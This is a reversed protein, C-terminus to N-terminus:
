LFLKGESFIESVNVINKSKDHQYLIVLDSHIKQTIVGKKSAKDVYWSDAEILCEPYNSCRYFRKKTTIIEKMMTECKKCIVQLEGKEEEWKKLIEQIRKQKEEEERKKREEIELKEEEKRHLIAIAMDDANLTSSESIINNSSSTSNTQVVTEIEEDTYFKCAFITEMASSDVSRPCNIMLTCSFCLPIKEEENVETINMDAFDKCEFITEMKSSDIGRPCNMMNICSFCLPNKEEPVESVSEMNEYTDCEMCEEMKASDIGKPCDIMLSCSFCLPNGDQSRHIKQPSTRKSSKASSNEPEKDLDRSLFELMDMDGLDDDLNLDLSLESDGISFIDEPPMDLSAEPSTKTSNEGLHLELRSKEKNYRNLFEKQYKVQNLRFPDLKNYKNLAGVERYLDEFFVDTLILGDFNFNDGLDLPIKDCSHPKLDQFHDFCFPCIQKITLTKRKKQSLIEEINPRTESKVGFGMEALIKEQKKKREEIKQAEIEEIRKEEERWISTLATKLDNTGKEELKKYIELFRNQYKTQDLKYSDVKGSYQWAGIEQYILVFFDESLLQASFKYDPIIEKPLKKCRHDALNPLSLFCYPCIQRVGLKSRKLNQIFGLREEAKLNLDKKSTVRNQIGTSIETAQNALDPRFDRSSLSNADNSSITGHLTKEFFKKLFAEYREPFLESYKKRNFKYLNFQNDSPLLGVEKYLDEFFDAAFLQIDYELDIPMETCKHKYLCDTTTLCYPCIQPIKIDPNEIGTKEYHTFKQYFDSKEWDISPERIKGEFDKPLVQINLPNDNKGLKFYNNLFGAQYQRQNLRFIDLKKYRNLANAGAYLDKFFIVQNMTSLNFEFEPPLYECHHNLLSDNAQFCFPCVMPYDRLAAIEAEEQLKKEQQAKRLKNLEQRERDEQERKRRLKEEEKARQLRKQRAIRHLEELEKRKKSLREKIDRRHLNDQEDKSLKRFEEIPIGAIHTIKEEPKEIQALANDLNFDTLLSKDEVSSLLIRYRNIFLKQYRSRNIKYEDLHGQKTLGNCKQYLNTFFSQSNDVIKSFQFTSPMTPCLHGFLSPLKEYCYPCLQAITTKQLQLPSPSQQQDKNSLLGDSASAGHFNSLKDSEKQSKPSVSEVDTIIEDLQKKTAIKDGIQKKLASESKKQILSVIEEIDIEDVNPSEMQAIKHYIVLFITQYQAKNMGKTTLFGREDWMNQAQYLQQYFDDDGQFIKLDFNPPAEKCVHFDLRTFQEYCYPCIKGIKSYYYTKKTPPPPPIQMENFHAKLDDIDNFLTDLDADKVALDPFKEKRQYIKVFRLRYEHRDLQFIDIQQTENNYGTLDQYVFQFFESTCIEKKFRFGDPAIKCVHRFIERFSRYCYPCIQEIESVSQNQAQSEVIKIVGSNIVLTYPLIWGLQRNNELDLEDQHHNTVM